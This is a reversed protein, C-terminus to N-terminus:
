PRRSTSLRVFAEDLSPRGSGDSFTMEDRLRGAPGQFLAGGDGIVALRAEDGPVDDLLHTSVVVTRGEALREFWRRVEARQVPDLGSTPEDLLLLSADSTVAQAIGVRRVMGGSLAGIRDDERSEMGVSALAESARAAVLRRSAGRVWAMYEVFQRVTLHPAMSYTQPLFGVARRAAPAPSEGTLKISGGGPRLAGRVLHFLTTKGAGNEGVLFNLGPELGVSLDSFVERSRYSFCLDRVRVGPSTM